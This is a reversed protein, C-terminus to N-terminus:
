FNPWFPMFEVCSRPFTRKQKNRQKNTPDTTPWPQNPSGQDNNVKTRCTGFSISRPVTWLKVAQLQSFQDILCNSIKSIKSPNFFTWLCVCFCVFWWVNKPYQLGHNRQICVNLWIRAFRDFMSLIFQTKKEYFGRFHIEKTLPQVSLLHYYVIQFEFAEFFVMWFGGEFFFLFFLFGDM